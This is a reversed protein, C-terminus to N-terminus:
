FGDVFPAKVPTFARVSSSGACRACRQNSANSCLRGFDDDKRWSFRPKPSFVSLSICTLFLLPNKIQLALDNIRPLVKKDPSKATVRLNRDVKQQYSFM